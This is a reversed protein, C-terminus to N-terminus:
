LLGTLVWRLQGAAPISNGERLGGPGPFTQEPIGEAGRFSFLCLAVGIRQLEGSKSFRAFKKWFPRM